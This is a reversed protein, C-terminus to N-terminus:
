LRANLRPSAMSSPLIIGNHNDGLGLERGLCYMSSSIHGCTKRPEIRFDGPLVASQTLAVVVEGAKANPAGCILRAGQQRRRRDREM